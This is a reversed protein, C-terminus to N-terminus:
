WGLFHLTATFEEFITAHVIFIMFNRTRIIKSYGDIVIGRINSVSVTLGQKIWFIFHSSWLGGGGRSAVGRDTHGGLM